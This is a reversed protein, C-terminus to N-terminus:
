SRSRLLRDCSLVHFLLFPLRPLPSVLTNPLSVVLALPSGSGSITLNSILLSPFTVPLSSSPYFLPSGSSSSFFCPNTQLFDLLLAANPINSFSLCISSDEMPLYMPHSSIGCAKVRGTQVRVSIHPPNEDRHAVRAVSEAGPSPM